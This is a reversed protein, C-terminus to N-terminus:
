FYFREITKQFWTTDHTPTQRQLKEAVVKLFVSDITVIFWIFSPLKQFTRQISKKKLPAARPSHKKM